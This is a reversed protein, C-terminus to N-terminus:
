IFYRSSALMNVVSSGTTLFNVFKRYFFTYFVFEVTSQVQEIKNRIKRLKSKLSHEVVGDTNGFESRKALPISFGNHSGKELPVAAVLFPLAALALVLSFRM